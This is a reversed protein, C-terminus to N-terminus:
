NIKLDLNITNSGKEVTRVLETKTSSQYEKPLMEKRVEVPEGNYEEGEQVATTVTVRHKGILAGKQRAVYSLTYFGKANTLGGSARGESPYFIVRANAVPNGDITLTGEVPAVDSDAGDCGTLALLGFGAVLLLRNLFDAM